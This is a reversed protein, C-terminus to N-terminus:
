HPFDECTIQTVPSGNVIVTGGNFQAQSCDFPNQAEVDLTGDNVVIRGNSDLGDTDGNGVKVYTNGGNIEIVVSYASSKNTANLGDDTAYVDVDGDNIQIKTAEIGERSSKVKITGGDIQVYSTGRIGDDAATINLTGGSLYIFGVSDDEDYESHLADKDSDITMEGGCIRISNNAELSDWASTVVLTGGTIKLDDKSTVGNGKASIIKLSGKGNLTLDEKGFIVADPNTTGDPVFTGSVKMYNNSGATTTVFVKGAAKIYVVPSDENTVTLGDLVLQVKAEDDANVIVTANTVNGSIVYVGEETISKNQGSSLTLYQADSLDPVQELDRDSFMDDDNDDNDDNDDDDDDDDDDGNDDDDDDDDDGANDDDSGADDDGADDDGSDSDDDSSDDDDSGGCSFVALVLLLLLLRSFHKTM